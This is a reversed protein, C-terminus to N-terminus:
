PLVFCVCVICASNGMELCISQDMFAGTNQFAASGPFPLCSVIAKTKWSPFLRLDFIGVSLGKIRFEFEDGLLDGSGEKLCPQGCTSNETFLLQSLVGEQWLGKALMGAAESM